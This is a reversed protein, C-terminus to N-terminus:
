DKWFKKQKPNSLYQRKTEWISGKIGDPREFDYVVRNKTTRVREKIGNKYLREFSGDKYRKTIKGKDVRGFLGFLGM